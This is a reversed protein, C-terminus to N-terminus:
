LVVSPYSSSYIIWFHVMLSFQCLFWASLCSVL